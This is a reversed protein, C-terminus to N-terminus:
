ELVFDFGGPRLRLTEAASGARQPTMAGKLPIPARSPEHSPEHAPSRSPARFAAARQPSLRLTMDPGASMSRGIRAVGARPDRAHPSAAARRRDVTARLAKRAAEAEHLAPGHSAAAYPVAPRTEIMDFPASPTPLGDTPRDLAQPGAAPQVIYPTVIIILETEDRLFNTSRFLSGLVPIDGLGPVKQVSTQYNNRILGAIAFSQGSALDVTTSVQRTSTGPISFGDISVSGAQSLESVSPSVQITILDESIVTPTFSLSVGFQRFETTVGGTGNSVPVPFEGGVRFDATEGSRATLNPKALLKIVGNRALADVVGEVNVSGIRGSGVASLSGGGLSRLGDVVGGSALGIMTEGVDGIANWNFGLDRTVNRSVEAIQVRLDVQTKGSIKLRNIVVAGEGAFQEALTRAALSAEPTPVAGTLIIGSRNVSVRITRVGIEAELVDELDRLDPLVAVRASLVSEGQRDLAFLTTRGTTKGFIFITDAAAVQVDAIDPDALFVTASPRDLRITQGEGPHLVVDQSAVGMNATSQAVASVPLTWLVLALAAHLATKIPRETTRAIIRAFVTHM